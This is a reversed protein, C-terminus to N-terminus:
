QDGPAPPCVDPDNCGLLPQNPATNAPRCTPACVGEVINCTVNDPPVAIAAGLLAPTVGALCSCNVVVWYGTVGDYFFHTTNGSLGTINGNIFTDMFGQLRVSVCCGDLLANGYFTIGNAFESGMVTGYFNVGVTEDFRTREAVVLDSEPAAVPGHVRAKHFYLMARGTVDVTGFVEGNIHLEAPLCGGTCCLDVTECRICCCQDDVGQCMTCEDPCQLEIARHAVYSSSSSTSSGSSSRKSWSSSHHVREELAGRHGRDSSSASYRAGNKKRIKTKSKHKWDTDGENVRHVQTSSSRSGSASSDKKHRHHKRHEDTVGAGYRNTESYSSSHSSSGDSDSYSDSCHTIVEEACIPDDPNCCNKNVVTVNGTIRFKNSYSQYPTISEALTNLSSITLTPRIGGQCTGGAPIWIIGVPRNCAAQQCACGSACGITVPGLAIL